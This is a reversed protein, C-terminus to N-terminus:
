FWGERQMAVFNRLFAKRHEPQRIMEEFSKADVAQITINVNGGLRGGSNIQNLGSTGINRMGDRNVVGEGTLLVAPVEGGSHFRMASSRFGLPIASALSPHVYGGTHFQPPGFAIASRRDREAQTAAIEQEAKDVWHDVHGVRSRSIDKVGAKRLADVGQNRLDELEQKASPADVQFQDYADEIKQAQDKVQAEIQLRAKRTSGGIGFLLGVIAGIAAGIGLTAAGLVGLLAPFMSILVGTGLAGGVAGLAAGGIPGAKGALKFLGISGLAALGTLGGGIGGVLGGIGSRSAGGPLTVGPANAGLGASLGLSTLAGAQNGSLATPLNSLLGATSQSEVIPPTGGPASAGGFIAGLLGGGGGGIGFLQGIGGFLTGLIGGGGGGFGTASAARMQKMGLIWTAVMQFVLDEFMKKFRKGINGSTIDDFLSEMDSALQDRTKAFEEQQVLAIEHLGQEQFSKDKAMTAEIEKIRAQADAAIQAYARQWPPLTAIAAETELQTIEAVRQRELEALKNNEETAAAIRKDKLEIGLQSEQQTIQALTVLYEREIQTRGTASDAEAQLRAINGEAAADHQLKIIQAQASEELAVKRKDFETQDIQLRKLLTEQQQVAQKEAEEIQAIGTLAALTAQNRLQTTQDTIQREAAIEQAKSLNIRAVRLEELKDIAKQQGLARESAIKDDIDRLDAALQLEIQRVSGATAQATQLQLEQIQKISEHFIQRGNEQFKQAAQASGDGFKQFTAEAEEILNIVQQIAFAAIGVVSSIEFAAVLATRMTASETIVKQISRPISIGISGALLEASERAKLQDKSLGTMVVNGSQGVKVLSSNLKTGAADIEKISQVAGKSDVEIVIQAVQAM